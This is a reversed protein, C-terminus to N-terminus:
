PVVQCSVNMPNKQEDGWPRGPKFRIQHEDVKKSNINREKKQRRIPNERKECM